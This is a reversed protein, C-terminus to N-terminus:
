SQTSFLDFLKEGFAAFCQLLVFLKPDIKVQKNILEKADEQSVLIVELEENEELLSTSPEGECFCYVLAICEDTLGASLYMPMIRTSPAISLLRLGTEEMLERESAEFVSEESDILGAPLEYIYDNAPVRFQKVLVLKNLSKHLAVIVVADIRVNKEEFYQEQLAEKNKRSAIIWHNLKGSKNIYEADYLSIFKTEAIPKIKQIRRNMIKIEM